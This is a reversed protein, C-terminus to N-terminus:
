GKLIALELALIALAQPGDARRFKEIRGLIMRGDPTRRYVNYNGTQPHAGTGDNKVLIQDIMSDNIDLTLKLM